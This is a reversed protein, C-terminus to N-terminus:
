SAWCLISRLCLSKDEWSDNWCWIENSWFGFPKSVTFSRQGHLVSFYASYHSSSHRYGRNDGRRYDKERFISGVSVLSASRQDGAWSLEFQELREDDGTKDSRRWTEGQNWQFSKTASRSKESLHLVCFSNWQSFLGFNIFSCLSYKTPPTRLLKEPSKLSVKLIFFKPFCRVKYNHRSGSFNM